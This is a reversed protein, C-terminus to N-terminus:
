YPAPRILVCRLEFERVYAIVYLPRYQSHVIQKDGKYFVLPTTRSDIEEIHGEM